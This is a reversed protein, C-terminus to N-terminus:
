VKVRAFEYRPDLDAPFNEPVIENWNIIEEAENDLLSINDGNYSQRFVRNVLPNCMLDLVPRPKFVGYEVLSYIYIGNFDAPPKGPNLKFRRLLDVTAKRRSVLQVSIDTSASAIVAAVDDFESKGM